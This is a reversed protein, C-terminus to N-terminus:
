NQQNESISMIILLSLRPCKYEFVSTFNKSQKFVFLQSLMQWYHKWSFCAQLSTCFVLRIFLNQGWCRKVVEALFGNDIYFKYICCIFVKFILVLQQLFPMVHCECYDFSLPKMMELGHDSWSELNVSKWTRVYNFDLCDAVTLSGKLFFMDM